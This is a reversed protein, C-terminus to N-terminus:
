RVSATPRVLEAPPVGVIRTFENVMHAQDAFGTKLAIDAWTGGRASAAMAKELRAIRAFQKTNMGFMAYFSRLLQRESVDLQAALAGVRLQPNRRLLGAARATVPAAQRTRLNQLIFREVHAFREASTKAEALLEELDSVRSAHFLDDLGIQADLFDRMREGLLNAAAEARLRVSITGVAGQPRVVVLGSQL